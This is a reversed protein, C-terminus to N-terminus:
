TRSGSARCGHSMTFRLSPRSCPRASVPVPAWAQRPPGRCVAGRSHSSLASPRAWPSPLLDQTSHIGEESGQLGERHFQSVAPHPAPSNAVEQGVSAAPVTTHATAPPHCGLSKPSICNWQSGQFILGRNEM